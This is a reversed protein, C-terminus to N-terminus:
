IIICCIKLSRIWFKSVTKNLSKLKQQWCLDNTQFSASEACGLQFSDYLMQSQSSLTSLSSDTNWHTLYVHCKIFRLRQSQNVSCHPVPYLLFRYWEARTSNGFLPPDKSQTDCPEWELLLAHSQSQLVSLFFCSRTDIASVNSVLSAMNRYSPILSVSLNSYWVRATYNASWSAELGGLSVQELRGVRCAVAVGLGM